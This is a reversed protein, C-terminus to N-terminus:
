LALYDGTEQYTVNKKFEVKGFAVTPIIFIFLSELTLQQWQPRHWLHEKSPSGSNQPAIAVNTNTAQNNRDINAQKELLKEEAAKLISSKTKSTIKSIRFKHRSLCVYM